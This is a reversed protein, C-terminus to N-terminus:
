DPEALVLREEVTLLAGYGYEARWDRPGSDRQVRWGSAALREHFVASTTLGVLPEGLLAFGLTVTRSFRALWVTDERTGYTVALQSAPASRDRIATLGARVAASPLYM